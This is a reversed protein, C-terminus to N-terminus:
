KHATLITRMQPAKLFTRKEMCADEGEVNRLTEFVDTFATEAIAIRKGVKCEFRARM